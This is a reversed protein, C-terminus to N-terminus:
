RCGPLRKNHKQYPHVTHKGVKEVVDRARGTKLRAQEAGLKYKMQGNTEM